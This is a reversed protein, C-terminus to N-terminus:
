KLVYEITCRVGDPEFAVTAQGYEAPFATKLLRTGFGTRAPPTVPPGNREKWTLRVHEMEVAWIISVLGDPVSLAGYKTANTCLEHLLLACSTGLYLPVSVPPGDLTFRGGEFPELVHMLFARLEPSSALDESVLQQARALATLRAMFISQHHAVSTANRATQASIAQVVGFLNNARHKIEHALLIAREEGEVHLEVLSRFMQAIVVVFICAVGFAILTVASDADLAFSGVPRLWLYDAALAGLALTALGAMTGGWVSAILVCPYLVVVPIQDHVIPQLMLRVGIGGAACLVAILLARWFPRPGYPISVALRRLLSRLGHQSIASLGGDRAGLAQDTTNL